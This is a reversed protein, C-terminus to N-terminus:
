RVEEVVGAPSLASELGEEGVGEILHGLGVLMRAPTKQLQRLERMRQIGDPSTVIEALRGLRRRFFADTMRDSVEKGINPTAYRFARLAAPGSQERTQRIVEQNWATRSGVPGIRGTAELVEALNQWAQLEQPELITSILRNQRQDGFVLARFKAGRNIAPGTTAYEKGAKLWQEELWARKIAQWAEPSQERLAFRAKSVDKVNAGPAFLKSAATQLQADPLDALVGVIGERVRAVEPTMDAYIQRGAAYTPSAEDMLALLQKKIGQLRRKATRGTGSQRASEIMDDLAMKAEHLAELRNEPAKMRVAQGTKPDRVLQEQTLLSRAKGLADKIPGKAIQLRMDIDKLLPTV